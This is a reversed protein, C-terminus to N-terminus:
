APRQAFLSLLGAGIVWPLWGGGACGGLALTTGSAVLILRILKAKSM